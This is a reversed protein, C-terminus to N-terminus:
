YIARKRKRSRVVMIVIAAALAALLFVPAIWQNTNESYSKIDIWYQSMLENTQDPLHKFVETRAMVEDDPYAIAYSEADLELLDRAESIPTSYGIYDANAASIEPDCMFNIFMEAETKHKTGKPIVMADVFYNTGEKPIAFALDPNEAMMTLADGGYYPALAAEGGEMKNFIEDMVYAQVLRKQEKLKEAAEALEEPDTTNSSYGLLMLAIGFADRPNNFMLIKGKYQEDWLDNWSTIPGNVMTKNYVIGVIGSMYPVSYTDQPDYELGLFADDILKANPINSYDLPEVMEDQIMRAVMYDSPIIVDYQVGGEAIKTYMEENSAFNTYHVTIGTQREFEAIVDLSEDSGDAIYEGWNYVEITVGTSPAGESTGCSALAFSICLLLIMASCAVRKM